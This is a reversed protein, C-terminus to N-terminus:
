CILTQHRLFSINRLEVSHLQQVFDVFTTLPSVDGYGPIAYEGQGSGGQQSTFQVDSVDWTYLNTYQDGHNPVPGYYAPWDPFHKGTESIWCTSDWTGTGGYNITDTRNGHTAELIAITVNAVAEGVVEFQPQARIARQAYAYYDPFLQPQTLPIYTKLPKTEYRNRFIPQM